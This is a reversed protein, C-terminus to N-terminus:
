SRIQKKLDMLEKALVYMAEPFNFDDQMHEPIPDNPYDSKFREIHELRVKEAMKSHYAFTEALFELSYKM